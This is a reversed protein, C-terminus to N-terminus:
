FAPSAATGSKQKKGAAQCAKPRGSESKQGAPLLGRREKGEHRAMGGLMGTAGGGASM